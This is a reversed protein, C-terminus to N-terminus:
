NGRAARKLQIILTGLVVLHRVADSRSVRLKDREFLIRATIDRPGGLAENADHLLGRSVCGPIDGFFM